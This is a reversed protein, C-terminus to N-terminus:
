VGLHKPYALRFLNPLVFTVKALELQQTSFDEWPGLMKPLPM